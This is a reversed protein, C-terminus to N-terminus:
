PLGNAEVSASSYLAAMVTVALINRYMELARKAM